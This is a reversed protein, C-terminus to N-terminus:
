FRALVVFIRIKRVFGARKKSNNSYKATYSISKALIICDSVESQRINITERGPCGPPPFRCS